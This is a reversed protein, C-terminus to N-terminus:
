RDLEDLPQFVKGCGPCTAKGYLGRIGDAVSPHGALVALRPLWTACPIQHLMEWSLAPEDDTAAAPVVWTRDQVPQRVPDELSVYIGEPVIELYLDAGCGPCAGQLEEDALCDLFEGARGTGRIAALVQLLHITSDEPPRATLAGFVQPVVRELAKVYALRLDDPLGAGDRSGNAAVAGVFAWYMVQEDAPRREALDVIHPVAAFSAPYVDSQHCLSSWIREWADAETEKRSLDRIMGPVDEASGYAHSLRKWESSGLDLM